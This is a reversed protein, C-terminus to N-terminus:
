YIGGMNFRHMAKNREYQEATLLNDIVAQTPRHRFDDDDFLNHTIKVAEDFSYHKEKQIIGVIYMFNNYTKNRVTRM